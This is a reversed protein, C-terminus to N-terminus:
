RAAIPRGDYPRLLAAEDQPRGGDAAMGAYQSTRARVRAASLRHEIAGVLALSTAAFPVVPREHVVGAFRIDARNLRYQIDPYLASLVGDVLNRRPLGLSRLGDRDAAATLWGLAACLDASPMEDTDIQLVWGAGAMAQLRNRQAAFDGDLPYEVVVAAGFVDPDAAAGDLLILIRAFYASLADVQRGIVASESGRGMIALTVDHGRVEAPRVIAVAGDVRAIVHGFAWVLNRLGGGDVTWDGASLVGLDIRGAALASRIDALVADPDAAARLTLGCHTCMRWAGRDHWGPNGCVVCRM